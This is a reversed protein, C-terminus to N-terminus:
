CIHQEGLTYNDYEVIIPHNYPLKTPCRAYLPTHVEEFMEAMTNEYKAEQEVNPHNPLEDDLDGIDEGDRSEANNEGDDLSGDGFTGREHRTLGRGNTRHIENDFRGLAEM